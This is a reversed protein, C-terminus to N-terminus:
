ECVQQRHAEAMASDSELNPFQQNDIITTPQVSAVFKWFFAIAEQLPIPQTASHISVFSTSAWAAVPQPVPNQGPWLSAPCDPGIVPAVPFVRVLGVGEVESASREPHAPVGNTSLTAGSPRLRLVIRAMNHM